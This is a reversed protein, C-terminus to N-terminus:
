QVSRNKIRKHRRGPSGAPPAPPEELHSTGNFTLPHSPFPTLACHASNFPQDRYTRHSARAGPCIFQGQYRGRRPAGGRHHPYHVTSALFPGCPRNTKSRSRRRAAVNGGPIQLAHSRQRRM